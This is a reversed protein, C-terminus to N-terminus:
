NVTFALCHLLPSSIWFLYASWVQRGPKELLQRWTTSSVALRCWWQLMETLKEAYVSFM